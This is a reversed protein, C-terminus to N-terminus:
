IENRDGPEAGIVISSYSHFHGSVHEFIGKEGREPHRFDVGWGYNRNLSLKFDGTIQYFTWRGTGAYM